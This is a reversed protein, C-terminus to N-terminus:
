DAGMQNMEEVFHEDEAPGHVGSKWTCADGFICTNGKIGFDWCMRPRNEYDTCRTGDQSLHKCTYRETGDRGKGVPILMDLVYFRDQWLPDTYDPDGDTLHRHRIDKLNEWSQSLTFFRCCHGMCRDLESAALAM